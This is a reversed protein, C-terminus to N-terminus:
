WLKTDVVKKWVPWGAVKMGLAWMHIHLAVCVVIRAKEFNKEAFTLLFNTGCKRDRLMQM